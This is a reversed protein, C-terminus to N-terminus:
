IASKQSTVIADMKKTFVDLKASFAELWKLSPTMIRHAYFIQADKNIECLAEFDAQMDIWDFGVTHDIQKRLAEEFPNEPMKLFQDFELMVHHCKDYKSRLAEIGKKWDVIAKKSPRCDIYSGLWKLAKFGLYLAIGATLANCIPPSPMFGREKLYDHKELLSTADMIGLTAPILGHGQVLAYQAALSHRDMPSDYIKRALLTAPFLETFHGSFGAERYVDQAFSVCNAGVTMYFDSSNECNTRKELIYRHLKKAQQKTVPFHLRLGQFTTSEEYNKADDQVSCLAVLPNGFTSPYIGYHNSYSYEINKIPQKRTIEISAHNKNLYISFQEPVNKQNNIKNVFDFLSQNHEIIKIVPEPRIHSNGTLIREFLKKFYQPNNFSVCAKFIREIDVNQDTLSELYYSSPMSYKGRIEEIVLDTFWKRPDMKHEQARRKSEDGLWQLHSTPCTPNAFPHPTISSIM